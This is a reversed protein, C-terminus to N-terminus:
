NNRLTGYAPFGDPAPFRFPNAGFNVRWSEAKDQVSVAIFYEEGSDIMPEGVGSGPRGTMWQGNLHWYLVQEDMDLAIGILDGDKIRNKTYTGAFSFSAAGTSVSSVLRQSTVAANTWTDPHAGRHKGRFTIEAYAKGARFGRTSRAGGSCSVEGASVETGDESIKCGQLHMRVVGDPSHDVVSPGTKLRFPELFVAPRSAPKMGFAPAQVQLQVPADDLFPVVGWIGFGQEVITRVNPFQVALAETWPRSEVLRAWGRFAIGQANTSPLTRLRELKADGLSLCDYRPSQLAAVINEALVYRVGRGRRAGPFPEGDFAVVKTLGTKELRRLFELAYEYRARDHRTQDEYLFFSPLADNTGFGSTLDAEALPLRLCAALQSKQRDEGLRANLKAETLAAILSAKREPTEDVMRQREREIQERLKPERLIAADLSSALKAERESLWRGNSHLFIQERSIPQAADGGATRRKSFVYQFEVTNAWDAPESVRLQYRVRYAKGSGALREPVPIEEVGTLEIPRYTLYDFCTSGSEAMAEYGKPTLRFERAPRVTGDDTTFSGEKMTFFGAQTLVMLEPVGFVLNWGSVGRVVVIRHAGPIAEFRVGDFGYEVPRVNSTVSACPPQGFEGIMLRSQLHKELDGKACGATAACAMIMALVYRRSVFYICVGIM